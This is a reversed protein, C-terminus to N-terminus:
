YGEPNNGRMQNYREEGLCEKAKSCWEICSPIKDRYVYNGCKRCKIRTEDSFIEVEYGCGPCKYLGVKLNRADQGPCNSVM